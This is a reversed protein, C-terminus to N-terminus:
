CTKLLFDPSPFDTGAKGLFFVFKNQTQIGSVIFHVDFRVLIRLEGTQTERIREGTSFFVADAEERSHDTASNDINILVPIFPCETKDQLMIQQKQEFKEPIERIDQQKFLSCADINEFMVQM